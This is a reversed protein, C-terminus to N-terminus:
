LTRIIHELLELISEWQTTAKGRSYNRKLTVMEGTTGTPDAGTISPSISQELIAGAEGLWTM